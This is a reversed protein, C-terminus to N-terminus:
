RAHTHTHTHGEKWGDEKGGGGRERERERERKSQRSQGGVLWCSFLSLGIFLIRALRSHRRETILM